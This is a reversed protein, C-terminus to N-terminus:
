EEKDKMIESTEEYSLKYLVGEKFTYIIPLGIPAFSGDEDMLALSYYTVNNVTFEECHNLGMDEMEDLIPKPLGNEDYFSVEVYDGGSPTHMDIRKTAM